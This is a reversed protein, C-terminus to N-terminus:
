ATKVFVGPDSYNERFYIYRTEKDVLFYDYMFDLTYLNERNEDLIWIHGEEDVDVGSPPIGGPVLDSIDFIALTDMYEGDPAPRPNSVNLFYGSPSAVYGIWYLKEDYFTFGKPNGSASAEVEEYTEYTISDQKLFVQTGDDKHTWKLDHERKWVDVHKSFPDYIGSARVPFVVGISGAREDGYSESGYAKLRTPLANYYFNELDVVESIQMANVTDPDAGVIEPFPSGSPTAGSPATWCQIGPNELFSISSPIKLRSIVDVEDVPALDIFKESLTEKLDDKMNDVIRAFPSLFQQGVSNPNQRIADWVPYANAMKQTIYSRFYGSASIDGSPNIYQLDFHQPYAM